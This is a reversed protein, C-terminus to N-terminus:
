KRLPLDKEGCRHDISKDRRRREQRPQQNDEGGKHILNANAQAAESEGPGHQAYTGTEMPREYATTSINVYVAGDM